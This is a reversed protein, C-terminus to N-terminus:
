AAINKLGVDLAAFNSASTPDLPLDRATVIAAAQRVLPEFGDLYSDVVIKQGPGRLMLTMWGGKRSRRTSFYRLRVSQVEDWRLSRVSGGSVRIGDADAAIRLRQRLATRITFLLFLGTLGGFAVLVFKSTPALAVLGASMLTGSGGLFYDAL